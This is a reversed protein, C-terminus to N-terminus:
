PTVGKVATPPSDLFVRPPPTDRRAPSPQAPHPLRHVSADSRLVEGTELVQKLRRLDGRVQPRAFLRALELSPGRGLM